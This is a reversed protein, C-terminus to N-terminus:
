SAQVLATNKCQEHQSPVPHEYLVLAGLQAAADAKSNQEVRKTPCVHLAHPFGMQALTATSSVVLLVGALNVVQKL